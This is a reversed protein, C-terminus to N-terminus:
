SARVHLTLGDMQEARVRDGPLLPTDGVNRVKWVSGRLEASGLGGPEIRQSITAYEGLVGETPRDAGDRQLFSWIRRRFFVLFVVALVAFATWQEWVAVDLAAALLGVAMAATGFVVLYFETTVFLESGLLIAGVLIWGWWPM